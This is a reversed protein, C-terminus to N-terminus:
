EKEREEKEESFAAQDGAAEAEEAAADTKEDANETEEDTALKKPEEEPEASGSETEQTEENQANEQGGRMLGRISFIVFAAGAVIFLVGGGIGLAYNENEGNMVGQILQYALYILYAGAIVRIVYSFKENRM